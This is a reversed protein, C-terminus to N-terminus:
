FNIIMVQSVLSLKLLIELAETFFDMSIYADVVDSYIEVYESVNKQFLVSFNNQAFEPQNLYLRCIGLQVILELPVNSSELLVDSDDEKLDKQAQEFSSPGSEILGRAMMLSTSTGNIRRIGEKIVVVAKDFDSNLMYLEVLMYIEENGMRLESSQENNSICQPMNKDAEMADEFLSIALTINKLEAYIKALEKIM